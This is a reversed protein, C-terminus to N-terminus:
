FIFSLTSLYYTSDSAGAKKLSSSVFFRGLDNTWRLHHTLQTALSAQPTVGVYGGSFAPFKYFTSPGYVSDNTSDRWFVPIKVHLAFRKDFTARLFPAVDIVNSTGIYYTTDLYSSQPVYPTTYTGVTGSKKRADGGSYIDNQIGILPHFRTHLFRWGISNNISYASVTRELSGKSANFRGGQYVTGFSFEIPGAKGWLRVGYNDRRTSGPQSGTVTSLTAASGNFLYGYYFADLFVQGPAGAFHFDPVAYSTYAGYLRTNWAPEDHFMARPTINTQIFDFLDLRIRPWVFFARGGNWSEPVSSVTRLYFVYEPADIFEMRGVMLGSKAGLVKGQLEGFGQLWDLRTRYGANYGYYNWGGADANILEGYFRLHPGVHLDAGVTTRWTMRGTDTLKNTGAEPRTQFFNKLREEGSLTLYVFGSPTLPIYKLLNFPDNDERRLVPNKLFSWDEAWRM